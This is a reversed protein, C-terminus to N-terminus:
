TKWMHLTFWDFANVYIIQYGYGQRLQCINVLIYKEQFMKPPFYLSYKTKNKQQPAFRQEQINYQCM